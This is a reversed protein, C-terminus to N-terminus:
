GPLRAPAIAKGKGKNKPKHDGPRPFHRGPRKMITAKAIDYLLQRYLDLLQWPPALSMQVTKIIVLQLARDFSLQTPGTGSMLAAEAMTWRVLNNLTLQVHLEKLIGAPRTSRLNEIELTHKWQRYITEIQWRQHYTEVLEPRSFQGADLLTTLLLSTRFGPASYRVLRLTFSTPLHPAKRLVTECPRMCVIFDDKGLRQCVKYPVGKVFRMLLHSNARGVADMIRYAWFGRDMLYLCGSGLRRILHIAAAREGIRLPTFVFDICAGTLVAVAAVLRGQPGRCGGHQNRARGFREVLRGSRPLNLTTGDIAVVQLNKWLGQTGFRKQFREVVCHFLAKFFRLPQRARAKVFAEETVPQCKHPEFLSRCHQWFSSLAATMSQRSAAQWAMIWFVVEPILVRRRTPIAATRVHIEQFDAPHLIERFPTLGSQRFIECARRQLTGISM